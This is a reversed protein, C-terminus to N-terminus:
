WAFYVFLHFGYDVVHTTIIHTRTLFFSGGLPRERVRLFPVETPRFSFISSMNLSTLNLYLFPSSAPKEWEWFQQNTGFTFLNVVYTSIGSPLWNLKLPHVRCWAFSSSYRKTGSQACVQYSNRVITNTCLILMNCRTCLALVLWACMLCLDTAAGVASGLRM